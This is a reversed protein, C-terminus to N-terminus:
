KVDIKVIQPCVSKIKDVFKNAKMKGVESNTKSVNYMKEIEELSYCSTIFTVGNNKNRYDIISGIIDDRVWESQKEEGLNDLVLIDATKAAEMLTNYNETM